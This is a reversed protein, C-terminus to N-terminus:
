DRAPPAARLELWEVRGAEIAERVLRERPSLKAGRTKVEVFVVRRV